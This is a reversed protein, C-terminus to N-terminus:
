ARDEPDYVPPAFPSRAPYTTQAEQKDRLPNQPALPEQHATRPEIVVGDLLKLVPNDPNVNVTTTQRPKGSTRDLVYQAARLRVGDDVDLDTALEVISYAALPAADEIIRDALQARTLDRHRELDAHMRNLADRPLWSVEMGPM